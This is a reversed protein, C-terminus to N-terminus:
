GTMTTAANMMTAGSALLKAIALGVELFQKVDATQLLKLLEPLLTPLEMGTQAATTAADATSGLGQPTSGGTGTQSRVEVSMVFIVLALIGFLHFNNM